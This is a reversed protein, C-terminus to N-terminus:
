HNKIAKLKPMADASIFLGNNDRKKKAAVVHRKESVFGKSDALRLALQERQIRRKCIRPFQKPNVFVATNTTQLNHGTQLM